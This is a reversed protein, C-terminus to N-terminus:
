GDAQDIVLAKQYYDLASDYEGKGVYVMGINGLITGETRQDGLKTVIELAQNYYSLANDYDTESLYITGINSYAAAQNNLDGLAKFDTAADEFYKLALGYEGKAQYVAGINNLTSAEGGLNKVERHIPLADAFYKMALDYSSQHLYVTGINTLSIAEGKLDKIEKYIALEQNFYRLAESYQGSDLSQFGSNEIQSIHIPDIKSTAQGGKFDLQTIVMVFGIVIFIVGFIFIMKAGGKQPLIRTGPAKQQKYLAFDWIYFPIAIVLTLIIISIGNHPTSPPIMQLGLSLGITLITLAVLNIFPHSKLLEPIQRM